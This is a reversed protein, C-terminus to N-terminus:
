TSSSTNLLTHPRYNGKTPDFVKSSLNKITVQGHKVCLLESVFKSFDHEVKILLNTAQKLTIYLERKVSNPDTLMIFLKNTISLDRQLELHVTVGTEVPTVKARFIVIRNQKKMSEITGDYNISEDSSLSVVKFDERRQNWNKEEVFGGGGHSSSNETGLFVSENIKAATFRMNSMSVDSTTMNTSNNANLGSHTDVHSSLGNVSRKKM